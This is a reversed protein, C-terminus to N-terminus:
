SSSLTEAGWVFSTAEQLQILDVDFNRTFLHVFSDENELPRELSKLFDLSDDSLEGKELENICNILGKESQRHIISLQIQHPFCDNFWALQFCYHGSDGTLANAIPPLQYFDGVLIVQIGGFINSCNRVKRCIIEVQSLTKASVMSVEDILLTNTNKINEQVIHFREDTQILHM